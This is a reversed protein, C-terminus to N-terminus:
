MSTNETRNILKNAKEIKKVVWIDQNLSYKDSNKLHEVITCNKLLKERIFQPPHYTTFLKKGEKIKGLVVLEGANYQSKELPLLRQSSVDGHTTFILIGNPKIVRLLEDIWAYHMAESLHTFISIAYVCDLTNKQFTLPPNLNNNIFKINKIKDNCWAITRKNYDTGFLEIKKYGDLNQLHRIVRAPGCGWECIKIEKETLYKKILEGILSSHVLGLEYYARWNTYNYADFSLLAPPPIFDPHENLFSKNSKRNKFIDKALLLMDAFQVLYVDRLFRALKQKIILM